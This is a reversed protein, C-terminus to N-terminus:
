FGINRGRASGQPAGHPPRPGQSVTWAGPNQAWSHASEPDEPGAEEGCAPAENM